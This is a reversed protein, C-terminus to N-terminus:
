ISWFYGGNKADRHGNWLFDMGHDIFEAAGPRGMLRAIAFCHVMRTTVHIERAPLMGTAVHRGIPRGLDDLVHFGGAGDMSHPEFFEFLGSAQDLLWDRHYRRATWKQPASGATMADNPM